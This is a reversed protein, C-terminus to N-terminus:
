QKEVRLVLEDGLTDRAIEAGLISNTNYKSAIAIDPHTVEIRYTGGYIGRIRTSHLDPPLDERAVSVKTFGQQNTTGKATKPGDGLYSEPVFTIEAGQLPKGGMLVIVSLARLGMAQEEWLEIRESIENESVVGDGDSDYKDLNELIGPVAALEGESLRRDGDSDYLEMAQSSAAEADISVPEIAQPQSSCGVALICTACALLLKNSSILDRVSSM